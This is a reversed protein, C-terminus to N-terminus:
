SEKEWYDWSTEWRLHVHVAQLPITAPSLSTPLTGKVEDSWMWKDIQQQRNAQMYVSVLSAGPKGLIKAGKIKLKKDLWHPLYCRSTLSGGQVWTSTFARRSLFFYLSLGWSRRWSYDNWKTKQFAAFRCESQNRLPFRLLSMERTKIRVDQPLNSSSVKWLLKTAVSKKVAIAAASESM